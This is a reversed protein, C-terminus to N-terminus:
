PEEENKAEEARRLAEDEIAHLERRSCVIFVDGPLFVGCPKGHQDTRPHPAPTLPTVKISVSFGMFAHRAYKDTRGTVRVLAGLDDLIRLSRAVPRSHPFTDEQPERRRRTM